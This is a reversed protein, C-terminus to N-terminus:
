ETVGVPSVSDRTRTKPPIFSDTNGHERPDTLGHYLREKDGDGKKLSETELM